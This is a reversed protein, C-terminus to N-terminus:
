QLDSLENQLPKFPCETERINKRLTESYRLGGNDANEAALIHTCAKEPEGNRVDIVALGIQSIIVGNTINFEHAYRLAEAFHIEADHLRNLQLDLEGLSMLNENIGTVRGLSKEIELAERTYHYAGELDEDSRTVFAMGSLARAREDDYGYRKQQRMALVLQDKAEPFKGAMAYSIGLNTRIRSIILNSNLAKARQLLKHYEDIAKQTERKHLYVYTLHDEVLLKEEESPAGFSLATEFHHRGKDPASQGMYLRGLRKHVEFNNPDLDLAEQYFAEAKEPNNEFCLAGLELLAELRETANLKAAAASYVTELQKIASDLDNAEILSFIVRDTKHKSTALRQLIMRVAREDISDPSAKTVNKAAGQLRIETAIPIPEKPQPSSWQYAVIYTLVFLAAILLPALGRTRIRTLANKLARITNLTTVQEVDFAVVPEDINKLALPGRRRFEADVKGRVLNVAHLSIVIGNPPAEQQLRAAINVGHGLLDGDPQESVDGVHLGVRAKANPNTPSVTDRARMDAIFHQAAAVGNAVSPFEAMFGDGARNFVRGHHDAVAKEFIAFVIEVTKVAAADDVEALRSYGCIDASMVTTLRQRAGGTTEHPALTM